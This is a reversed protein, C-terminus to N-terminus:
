PSYMQLRKFALEEASEFSFFSNIIKLLIKKTIRPIIGRIIRM